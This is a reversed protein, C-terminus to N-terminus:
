TCIRSADYSHRTGFPIPADQVYLHNGFGDPNAYWVQDWPIDDGLNLQYTSNRLYPQNTLGLGTTHRSFSVLMINQCSGTITNNSTEVEIDGHLSGSAVPFAAEVLIGFTNGILTNNTITAKVKGIVGPAGIGLAGLRLGTGVPRALHNRVENNFIQVNVTSSAPLVQQEVMAPVPILTASVAVIGPIGGPGVLRNYRAIYDGPGALCIDCTNGRGTLYNKEVLASTARMDLVETFGGEFRNGRVTVNTVRMTFVGQGGTTTDAGVHGAQFLFGEIVAGSGSSGNPHGNVVIMPQSLLNADILLVPNAAFTTIDGTQAVGTARGAADVQMVMAGKLTVDPVDIVIPYTEKTADSSQGYAGTFTGPAVQITIRCLASTLEGRTIRGARVANIADTVRTFHISDGVTSLRDVVLTTVYDGHSKHEPLDALQIEAPGRIQGAVECVPILTGTPSSTNDSNCATLICLISLSQRSWTSM